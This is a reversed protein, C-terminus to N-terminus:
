SARRRAIRERFRAAQERQRRLAADQRIQEGLGAPYGMRALMHEGREVSFLMSGRVVPPVAALVVLLRLGASAPLFALVLAVPVALQVLIRSAHRLLWTRATVDRLVWERYTIPLPRGFAYALWRLPGPRSM